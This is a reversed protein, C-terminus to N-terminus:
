SVETGNSVGTVPVLVSKRCQNEAVYDTPTDVQITESEAGPLPGRTATLSKISTAPIGVVAPQLGTASLAGGASRSAAQM